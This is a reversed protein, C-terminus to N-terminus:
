RGRGGGNTSVLRTVLEEFRAVTEAVASSAAPAAVRPPRELTEELLERFRDESEALAIVGQSAMRRGFAIQHDDVHEGLRRTRPVVIPRQGAAVALMITGPGGHCVVGSAQRLADQMPDYGLYDISEAHRPETSTGRQVLCRVHPRRADLWSDLWAMLRDFPHHDTGVTAFLLPKEDPQSAAM